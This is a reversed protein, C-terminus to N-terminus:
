QLLRAAITKPIGRDIQLPPASLLRRGLRVLDGPPVFVISNQTEMRQWRASVRGLPNVSRPPRVILALAHYPLWAEKGLIHTAATLSPGAMTHITGDRWPHVNPQWSGFRNLSGQLGRWTWPGLDVIITM